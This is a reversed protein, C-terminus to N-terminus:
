YDQGTIDGESGQCGHMSQHADMGWRLQVTDDDEEIQCIKGVVGLYMDLDDNPGLEAEKWAATLKTISQTMRVTKGEEVGDDEVSEFCDEKLEADSVAPKSANASKDVPAPKDAEALGM